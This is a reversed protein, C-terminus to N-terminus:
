NNGCQLPNGFLPLCSTPLLVHPFIVDPSPLINTQLTYLSLTNSIWQLQDENHFHARVSHLKWWHNITSNGCSVSHVTEVVSQNYQKWWQIITSNGDSISQVTEVSTPLCCVNQDRLHIELLVAPLSRQSDIIMTPIQLSKRYIQFHALHPHQSDVIM